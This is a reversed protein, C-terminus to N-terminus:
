EYRLAVIPDVRMARRAPIWCSFVAVTDLVVAVCSFTLADHASVGFLMESLLQTLAMAAVIGLGTGALALRMGERLVLALVHSRRAGLAIRIGIENTRRGVSYSIVGYVGIMALILAVAAFAGLLIMSFRRAALTGAIIEDMTEAGYIVQESNMAASVRRLSNFVATPSSACRVVVDLGPVMLLMAGDDQQGVPLYMQARLKEIDDTDLGWQKVHGVVGVIEAEGPPDQLEVRKGVPNEKGFFKAALVEDVVVVVPSHSDDRNTFFRGRLLPIRMVKLYDPGVIYRLTWNMDMESAPKPQGQILFVGDDEAAMPLAGWSLAVASVGPTAAFREEAESLRTRITEASETAMSSPFTLGFHLVGEPRFGPNVKWLEALSRIMLGAGVLLVMAMGMELVIFVSQARQRAGTAGRGGEKLTKQVDARLVRSAPALGFFIGALLSILFTFALVRHDVSIDGARPLAAPLIGLAARTGWAAILLGLGGGALALLVSETLLQRVLRGGTAGLAARIAVERTRRNARALLLNGVNVCAILLVFAVAGLLMLLVPRIAGLMEERLPVLTAGTDKNVDPYESALAATVGAMDARAQEITIGPKLRGFGHFALGAGRNLFGKNSWQGMPVYVEANRFSRTLLDFTAPLVGIITYGRGDLTLSRGIATPLGGFKRKWFSESIIVLPAAGVEDEGPAFGRGLLPSVGLVSFFDSTVLRAQLRESEGTGTLVFSYRRSLAMGSFTRNNAKWDKFNPYPISGDPFNPKSEHLAVLQEPHPFPLPNLLVGNVVSFVGANAGIGLALTLVAVATFGPTTCLMRTGYRLDQALTEILYTGLAEHCEEKFKEYGGFELRARRKAMARSIGLCELDDARERIHAQLEEDMEATVAKRQFLARMRFFVDRLM